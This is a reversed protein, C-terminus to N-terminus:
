IATFKLTTTSTKIPPTVSYWEGTEENVFPMEKKLARLFTEREKKSQNASLAAQDLREWEIDGTGEYQYKTGAEVQEIKFGMMEFSKGNKAAEKLLSDKLKSDLAEKIKEMWKLYVALTLPNLNGAEVEAFIQNAFDEVESKSTPLVTIHSLAEM